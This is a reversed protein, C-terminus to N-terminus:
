GKLPSEPTQFGLRPERSLGPQWSWEWVVEKVREYMRCLVSCNRWLVDMEVWMCVQHVGFCFFFFFCLLILFFLFLVFLFHFFVVFLCVWFFLVFCLLFMMICKIVIVVDMVLMCISWKLLSGWHCISGVYLYMWKLVANIQGLDM